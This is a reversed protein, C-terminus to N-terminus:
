MGSAAGPAMVSEIDSLDSKTLEVSLVAINEMRREREDMLRKGDGWRRM